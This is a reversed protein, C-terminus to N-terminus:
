LHFNCTPVNRQVMEKDPYLWMNANNIEGSKMRNTPGRYLVPTMEMDLCTIVESGTDMAMNSHPTRRSLRSLLSQFSISSVLRCVLSIRVFLVFIPTCLYYLCFIEPPKRFHVYETFFYSNLCMELFILHVNYMVCFLNCIMYAIISQWLFCIIFDTSNELSLKGFNKM